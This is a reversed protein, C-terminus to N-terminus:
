CTCSHCYSRIDGPRPWMRLLRGDIEQLCIGARKAMKIIEFNNVHREGKKVLIKSIDHGARIAEIVANRGEIKFAIYQIDIM